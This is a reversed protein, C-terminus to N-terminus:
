VIYIHIKQSNSHYISIWNGMDLEYALSVHDLIYRIGNLSVDCADTCESFTQASIALNEPDCSDIVYIVGHCESYYQLSLHVATVITLIYMWDHSM